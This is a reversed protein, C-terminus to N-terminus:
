RIEYNANVYQTHQRFGNRYTIRLGSVKLPREVSTVRVKFLIVRDRPDGSLRYGDVPVSAVGTPDAVSPNGATWSMYAGGPFADRRYVRAEVFELGDDAVRPAVQVLEVPKRVELDAAYFYVDVDRGAVPVGLTTEGDGVKIASGQKRDVLWGALLVAVLLGVVAIIRGRM